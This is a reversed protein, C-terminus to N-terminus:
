ESLGTRGGEVDIGAQRLLQEAKDRSGEWVAMLDRVSWPPEADLKASTQVSERCVMEDFRYIRDEGRLKVGAWNNDEFEGEQWGRIVGVVEERSPPSWDREVRFTRSYGREPYEARNKVLAEVARKLFPDHTPNPSDVSSNVVYKRIDQWRDAVEELGGPRKVTATEFRAVLNPIPETQGPLNYGLIRYESPDTPSVERRVYGSVTELYEQFYMRAHPIGSGRFGKPIIAAIVSAAPMIWFYSPWGATSGRGVSASQVQVDNVLGSPPLYFLRGDASPTENWLAVGVNGRGDQVQGTCYVRHPAIARSFTNTLKYERSAVWEAFEEWWESLHGFRCTEEDGGYEYFGCRTIQYLHIKMTLGLCRGRM